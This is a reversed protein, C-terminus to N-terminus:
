LRLELFDLLINSTCNSREKNYSSKCYTKNVGDVYMTAIGEDFQYLNNWDELKIEKRLELQEIALTDFALIINDDYTLIKDKFSKINILISSSNDNYYKIGMGYTKYGLILFKKFGISVLYDLDNINHVGAILHVITDNYEQFLIPLNKDRYSIGLGNIYNIDIFKSILNKQRELHLQNVTINCILEQIYCFELLEEIYIYDLTSGGGIAIEVGKPLSELYNKIFSIDSHKGKLNSSEHCYKCISNMDCYNTVKLDLSIPSELFMENELCILRRTGDNSIEVYVNGNMYSALTKTFEIDELHLTLGEYLFHEWYGNDSGLLLYSNPNFLYCYLDEYTNIVRYFNSSQNDINSYLIAGNSNVPFNFIVNNAGTVEKLLIHLIKLKLPNNYCSSVYYNLKIDFENYKVCAWDFELQEFNLILDGNTLELQIPNQVKRNIIFSHTSSSNTEFVGKRLKYM